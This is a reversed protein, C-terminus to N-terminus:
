ISASLRRSSSNGIRPGFPSSLVSMACDTNHFAHPSSHNQNEIPSNESINYSTRSLRCFSGILFHIPFSSYMRRERFLLSSPILSTSRLAFFASTGIRSNMEVYIVSGCRDRGPEKNGQGSGVCWSLVDDNMIYSLFLLHFHKQHQFPPVCISKMICMSFQESESATLFNIM